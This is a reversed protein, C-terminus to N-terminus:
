SHYRRWHTQIMRTHRSMNLILSLRNCIDQRKECIVVEECSWLGTYRQLTELVTETKKRNQVDGDIYDEIALNYLVDVMVHVDVMSDNKDECEDNYICEMRLKIYMLVIHGFTADWTDYTNDNLMDRVTLGLEDSLSCISDVYEKSSRAVLKSAFSNWGNSEGGFMDEIAVVMEGFPYVKYWVPVHM